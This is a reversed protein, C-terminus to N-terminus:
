ALEADREPFVITCVPFLKEFTVNGLPFAIMPQFLESPSGAVKLPGVLVILVLLKELQFKPNASTVTRCIFFPALGEVTEPFLIEPIELLLAVLIVPM